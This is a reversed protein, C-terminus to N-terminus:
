ASPGSLPRHAIDEFIQESEALVRRWVESATNPTVAFQEILLRIVSEISIRGSPFHVRELMGRHPTVREALQGRVQLHTAPHQNQPERAYDYRFVWRRGIDDCQYQYRAQEVKMRYGEKAQERFLIISLRLFNGDNLPVLHNEDAVAGVLMMRDKPRPGANLRVGLSGKLVTTRLLLHLLDAFAGFADPGGDM